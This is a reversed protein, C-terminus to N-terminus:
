SAINKWKDLDSDKVRTKLACSIEGINESPFDECKIKYVPHSKASKALPNKFIHAITRMPTHSVKINFGELVKAIRKSFGKAYSLM